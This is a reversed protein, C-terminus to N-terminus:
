RLSSKPTQASQSHSCHPYPHACHHAPAYRNPRAWHKSKRGSSKLGERAREPQATPIGSRDFPYPEPGYLKTSEPTRIGRGVYLFIANAFYDNYHNYRFTSYEFMSVMSIKMSRSPRCSCILKVPLPVSSQACSPISGSVMTSTLFPSITVSSVCSVSSSM